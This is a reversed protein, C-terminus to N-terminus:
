AGGLHYCCSRFPTEFDKPFRANEKLIEKAFPNLHPNPISAASYTCM